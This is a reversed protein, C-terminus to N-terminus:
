SRVQTLFGALVLSLSFESAIQQSNGIIFSLGKTKLGLALTRDLVL